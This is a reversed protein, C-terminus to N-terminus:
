RAEVRYGHIYENLQYGCTKDINEFFLITICLSCFGCSSIVFLYCSNSRAIELFVHTSFFPPTMVANLKEYRSAITLLFYSVVLM